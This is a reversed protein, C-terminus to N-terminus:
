ISTSELPDAGPGRIRRPGSPSIADTLRSPLSRAILGRPVGHRRPVSIIRAGGLYARHDHPRARGGASSAERRVARSRSGDDTRLLMLLRRFPGPPIPEGHSGLLGFRGRCAGSVAGSGGWWSGTPEPPSLWTARPGYRGSRAGRHSACRESSSGIAAPLGRLAFASLAAMANASEVGVLAHSSSLVVVPMRMVRVPASRASGGVLDPTMHRVTTSLPPM